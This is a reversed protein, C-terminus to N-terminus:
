RPVRPAILRLRPPLSEFIFPLFAAAYIFFTSAGAIGPFSSSGLAFTAAVMWIRLAVRKSAYRFFAWFIALFVIFAAITGLWLQPEAGPRAPHLPLRHLRAVDLGM